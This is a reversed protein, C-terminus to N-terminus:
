RAIVPLRCFGATFKGTAILIFGFGAAQLKNGSKLDLSGHEFYSKDMDFALNLIHYPGIPVVQGRSKWFRQWTTQM